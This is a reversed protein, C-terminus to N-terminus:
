DKKRPAPMRQRSSSRLYRSPDSGFNQPLRAPALGAGVELAPDKRVYPRPEGGGTRSRSRKKSGIRMRKANSGEVAMGLGALVRKTQWDQPWASGRQSPRQGSQSAQDEKTSSVTGTAVPPPLREKPALLRAAAVTMGSPATSCSAAVRKALPMGSSSRTSPPPTTAPPATSSAPSGPM